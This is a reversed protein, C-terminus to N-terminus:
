GFLPLVVIFTTGSGELSELSVSGGHQDVINKVISLGLGTGGLDRSRAKDVRYFREFIRQHHEPNIGVGTDSIKLLANSNDRSLSVKIEGGSPTYKIANDILNDILQNIAQMDGDITLENEHLDAELSLQKDKCAASATGISRRVVEVLNFPEFHQEVRDSELRSITMLDTVLTSLRLSQTHIKETFRIRTQEEMEPDDLITETLGRIATIPTKLEHSANAVFDRRVRSLNDLESTDNLVIVAGVSDNDDNLLAATYIDVNLDDTGPISRLRAKVVGKTDMAQQLANTIEPIRVEEWVLSNICSTMSVNLLTAAAQNIHIIRQKQDVAIVGEVMGTFIMALRNRDSTLETMREASNRAMRNVADALKGIEDQQQINIRRDFDGQSIAEAIKTMRTLPDSFRKVFYFGLLLAAIASVGTGFLVILRLQALKNDIITRSLSVRVIGITEQNETVKLARYIMQQQLTQSFRSTIASGNEIADIIEPRQLHNDMNQPLEQSDAVVVGNRDIVTLRSKINNGLRVVTQQLINNQTDQTTENLSRKAIEALLESRVALSNHIEELGSQTVQRGVLTGVILMSILIIVVYGAYLRWLLQSRFM